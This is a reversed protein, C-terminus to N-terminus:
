KPSRVWDLFSEDEFRYDGHALRILIADRELRKLSNQVTNTEVAKGLGLASGIRARAQQGTVAIHEDSVIELMVQDAPKLGDWLRKFNSDDFVQSKIQELAFRFGETANILYFNLFQRFFDPTNKLEGFATMADALDLPFKTLQNVRSVMHAVFDVDLLPFANVSTWNYFPESPRTFMKRLTSESSGSFVVKITSKRCDLAARLAHSFDSHQAEALVQAEDLALLLTKGSSDFRDLVEALVSNYRHQTERSVEFGAEVLPTKATLKVSKVPRSLKGLLGDAGLIDLARIISHVVASQPDKKNEWLNTYAVLKGQNKAIPLLDELLFETKGMRRKAFMGWSSILGQDFM